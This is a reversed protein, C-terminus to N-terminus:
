ENPAAEGAARDRYYPVLYERATRYWWGAAGTYWSWGARGEQGPATYIDAPIVFPEALYGEARPALAIDELIAAGDDPRGAQFCARALWVAAHTYQGGNERFGPGYTAVYGPARHGPEFPPALLAIRRGERDWLARLATDLATSVRQPDAYPNFAAFSQAVSDIRCVEGSGAGLPTGDGYWGRLYHDKDWAQDAAQGLVRAAAEYRESGPEGLSNLLAAFRRCVDSVFWTLWVSEAGPGMSDFGDNWDGSGMLLLRHAGTGRSLVTWLLRHCHELVSGSEGSLRPTEYRSIENEALPESILFPAEERCLSTDGTQEAYECVAWVLWVLDDSCRTRVGRDTEGAGPHWWHQVDGQTFQHACCTLIHRRCGDADLPILNVYDQLQDRFGLAGGSQYVSSRGLIRCAATQYVSWGNLLRSVPEPLGTFKEPCVRRVWQKRCRALAARAAGPELLAPVDATGLLLVAEKELRFRGCFAPLGSRSVPRSEGLLFAAGDAATEDWPASCRATLVAGPFPCRPNVATLAGDTLSVLCSSADEAEPALQLPACWRVEAPASSELLLVRVNEETPVFATLSLTIGEATKVWRAAGFSFTVGCEAGDRAAFFSVARGGIVADLREPGEPPLPDGRWPILPCERANKYWLSGTGCDAACWGLEGNALMVSWARGPLSPGATFHFSGDEDFRWPVPGPASPKEVQSVPTRATNRPPLSLGDRGYVASSCAIVAEGDRRLSAFRVGGRGAPQLELAAMAKEMAARFAQRYEGDEGTLFVLDFDMGMRRLLAYQRLLAEGAPVSQPGACEAAAIPVDGSIGLKWLAERSVPPLGAGEESLTPWVLARLLPSAQEYVKEDRILPAPQERLMALAGGAAADRSGAACLAFRVSFEAEGAPLVVRACLMAGSQWGTNERFAAGGGRGPFLSFDSSFAAERDTALALYRVGQGGRPLRCALLVGDRVETRIGLRAFSPHARYDRGGTLVPELAIYLEAEPLDGGRSIRIQRWEGPHSPSVAASVSWRLEGAGGSLVAEEPTFEWTFGRDEGPRPLLSLRDEDRQLFLDIGRSDEAPHSPSRYPALAGCRARSVGSETFLLSYTGNSLLATEPLLHDTGQGTRPPLAERGSRSRVAAPVRGRRLLAGGTPVQEQLLGTYAAMAPDSLFWRHLANGKLINTIAALSMGLHHAMVCRVATGQGGPARDPTFDVAEWLGYPGSFEPRDLRRLNRMAARPSVALALYSSYPSIVREKEMGRCLALRAAGHAKYRYHGSGDLAYFASESVGWLRLPGVASRRQVYVAFKASEWLHSWPFLPVFLEPMLYEFLSGSWSVMGRFGDFGVRARSLRQWHKKPVQGSAVAIYGTLREESEMLDYWSGEQTRDGPKLGIRFLSRARDYLPTFDMALRLADARDALAHAGRERLAAGVTLLCAWLNGSDVTSVYAPVLPALTRSDYWNYLHGNWKEMREAASILNECLGLAEQSCALGLELACVASVMAFGLNTPSVRRAPEAAPVDQVNDPPLFHDEPVCRERFYRWIEAARRLLFERDDGVLPEASEKKLGLGWAALPAAMWVAGIVLGPIVPSLALLLTGLAPSFWMKRFHTGIGSQGASESQEATQWQLLHRGSVAMRWIACCAASLCVWSEYPLLILAALGRRLPRFGAETFTRERQRGLPRSVGALAARGVDSFLCLLAIVAGPVTVPSPATLWAALAILLGPSLLSRRLSDLLRWRELEPLERGRRFAWPLNQWDGRIWRHQRAFYSLVGAPFGDTLAVDGVFGGRLYAGELADHSLVRGPPVRSGLCDLYARIHILGKGAFGGSGFRDMYVEGAAAAYPDAGGGGSFLRAFPTANADSLSVNIRPHLLGHGRVVLGARLDTVPRNLPHLATGILERASEPELRTDADLTLVYRCGRLLAEDGASLKMASRDGTLLSCLELLAGRKREWPIFRGESKDWSRERTFLFFGGGYKRNLAETRERAATLLRRDSASLVERSEPLDCLIGMLLNEGCDRSAARFEELRSVAASLSKEGTLLLSIVCVTKGEPPVGNELALRPLRRVPVSRLIRSDIMRKVMEATGPFALLGTLASGTWVSLAACGGLTLLINLLIYGMGASRKRAGGLPREYLYYGVHRKRESAGRAALALVREAAAAETLAYRRALRATEERYRERSARDMLPYVGAPDSMYLQETRDASEVADTIEAASFTRLANFLVGCRRDDPEAARYEAALAELAALRLGAGVLCLERRTLPTRDQFGRLFVAIREPDTEGDGAWLLARCAAAILADDGAARLTGAGRFADAATQAAQEALYLNDLLWQDAGTFASSEGQRRRDARKRLGRLWRRARRVIRRGSIRGTVAAAAAAGRAHDELAQLPIYQQTTEM